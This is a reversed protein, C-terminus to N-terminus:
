PKLVAVVPDCNRTTSLSVMGDRSPLNAICKLCYAWVM